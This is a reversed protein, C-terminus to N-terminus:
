NLNRDTQLLTRAARQQETSLDEVKISGKHDHDISGSHNHDIKKTESFNEPDRAALMRLLIKESYRRRERIVRGERDFTQELAGDLALERAKSVLKETLKELAKECADDFDPDAKRHRLVTAASISISASAARYSGLRELESLFTAKLKNGFKYPYGKKAGPKTM